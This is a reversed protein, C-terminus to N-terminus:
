KFILLNIATGALISFRGSIPPVEGKLFDATHEVSEADTWTVSGDASARFGKLNLDKGTNYTGGLTYSFQAKSPSIDSM